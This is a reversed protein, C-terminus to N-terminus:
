VGYNQFGAWFFPSSYDFDDEKVIQKEYKKRYSIQALQLARPKSEFKTDKL